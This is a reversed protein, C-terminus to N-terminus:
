RKNSLMETNLVSSPNMVTVGFQQRAQSVHKTSTTMSQFYGASATYDLVIKHGNKGTTFGILLSYSYLDNGNTHYSGGGNVAQSGEAWAKAVNGNTTKIVTM